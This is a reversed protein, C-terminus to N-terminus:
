HALFLPVPADALLRRTIGGFLSERLRSHGYAGLICYAPGRQVMIALLTGAVGPELEDLREIRAHIAHRSLYSAAEEAPDGTIAGIEVITVGTAQELMPAAARLAEAAPPSGDWAILVHGSLDIGRMREPVALIPKGSKLVVDSVISPMEPVMHGALSTNLVIVDALTAADELLPAIYGTQDTWSWAIDESELRARVHQANVAERGRAEALLMLEADPYYETGALVPIQVIDLCTLHGSISRTLDLAAQLRAEQGTDDHILLLVNKM